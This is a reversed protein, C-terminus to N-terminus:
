KRSDFGYLACASAIEMYAALHITTKDTLQPIYFFVSGPFAHPEGMEVRSLKIAKYLDDHLPSLGKTTQQTKLFTHARSYVTNKTLM